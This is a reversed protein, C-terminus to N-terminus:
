TMALPDRGAMMSRFVEAHCQAAGVGAVLVLTGAATCTPCIVCAVVVDPDVGDIAERHVHQVLLDDPHCRQGCCHCVVYADRTAALSEVFGSSAAATLLEGCQADLDVLERRRGAVPARQEVTTPASRTATLPAAVGPPIM